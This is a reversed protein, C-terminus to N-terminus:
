VTKLIENSIGCIMIKFFSKLMEAYDESTMTKIKIEKSFASPVEYTKQKLTNWITLM